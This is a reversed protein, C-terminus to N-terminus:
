FCHGCTTYGQATLEDISQNTTSYNDPAIKKVDRCTPHHIKRTSTNLVFTDSTQQQEANDYTNFNEGNGSGGTNGSGSAVDQSSSKPTISAEQNAKEEALRKEEAEQAAKEEALRKEEAEKAAREEALRKEEAEQAAKEEALRKEEAEKAAKEEALRQEEAEKAAQEAALRQEEAKQAAERAALDVVSVTITNSKVDGSEVSIQYTGEESGTNVTSESFILTESNTIYELSGTDADEPFVSIKVPIETNIDYESQEDSLSLEISEIKVVPDMTVGFGIFSIMFLLASVLAKKLPKKATRKSLRKIFALILFVPTCILSFCLILAFLTNM